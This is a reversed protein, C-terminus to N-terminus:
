PGAGRWAMIVGIAFDKIEPGAVKGAWLLAVILLTVAVRWDNLIDRVAQILAIIVDWPGKCNTPVEPVPDDTPM